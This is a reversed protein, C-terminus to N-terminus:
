KPLANEVFRMFMTAFESRRASSKANLCNTDDGKLIGVGIAWSVYNEAYHSVDDGDAYSSLDGTAPLEEETMGKYQCFRYFMAVLQERTVEGDPGFETDTVGKVIGHEAAWAIAGTYYRGEEVDEFPSPNEAPRGGALRHLVTVAMGRNLTTDPGFETATMGSMFGKLYVYCVAEYFWHDEHVDTLPFEKMDPETPDTPDSPEVPDSPETPESPETPTVPDEGLEKWQGYVEVTGSAITDETLWKSDEDPVEDFCWGVFEYGEMEPALLKGYTEGQRYYEVTDSYTRDLYVTQGDCSGGNYIVPVFTTGTVKNTPYIGYLFIEVEVMRRQATPKHVAGSVRCWAGMAGILEEVTTPNQMWRALRYVYEGNKKLTWGPGLAYTFMLLADFQNQTYQINNNKAISNVAPEMDATVMSRLLADADEETFVFNEPDEKWAALVDDPCKSGYGISYQGYDWMPTPQFGEFHKILAILDESAAMTIYGDEGIPNLTVTESMPQATEGAGAALVPMQVTTLVLVLALLFTMIKKQM